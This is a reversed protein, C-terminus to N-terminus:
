NLLHKKKIEQDLKGCSVTSTLKKFSNITISNQSRKYNNLEETALVYFEWQNLCLPDVTAKDQHHLLCFVYVNASRVAV